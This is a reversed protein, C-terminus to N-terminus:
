FACTLFKMICNAIVALSGSANKGGEDSTTESEYAAEEGAKQCAVKPMDSSLPDVCGYV